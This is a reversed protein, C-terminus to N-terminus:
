FFDADPFVNEELSTLGQEYLLWFQVYKSDIKHEHQRSFVKTSNRTMNKKKWAKHETTM